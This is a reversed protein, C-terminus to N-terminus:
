YVPVKADKGGARFKVGSRYSPQDDTASNEFYWFFGPFDGVLLDRDGDGDIDGLMPGAHAIPSLAGIDIPAGDATLRVPEALDAARRPEADQSWLRGAVVLLCLIWQSRKMDEGKALTWNWL